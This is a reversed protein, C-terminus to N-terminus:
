IEIRSSLPSLRFFSFLLIILFNALLFTILWQKNNNNLYTVRSLSFNRMLFVGAYLEIDVFSSLPPPSMDRALRCVASAAAAGTVSSSREVYVIFSAGRPSSFFHHFFLLEGKLIIYTRERRACVLFGRPRVLEGSHSAIRARRPPKFCHMGRARARIYAM